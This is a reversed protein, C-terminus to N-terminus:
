FDKFMKGMANSWMQREEESGRAVRARPNKRAEKAAAIREERSLQPPSVVVVAPPNPPWYHPDAVGGNIFQEQALQRQIARQKSLYKCAGPDTVPSISSM